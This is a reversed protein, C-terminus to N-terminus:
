DQMLEQLKLASQADMEPLQARKQKSNQHLALTSPAFAELKNQPWNSITLSPNLRDFQHKSYGVQPSFGNCHRLELHLHALYRGAATGVSGVTLGRPILKGLSVDIESLHAYMSHLTRGDPARHAVIVTKGWGPSPTGAYIVLGDAINYVPDGFDSDRGGIGNLDDGTHMGGRKKNPEMFSQANYAFAGIESGLAESVVLARPIQAAEFPSHLHFKPDFQQHSFGPNGEVPAGLPIDVFQANFFNQLPPEEEYRTDMALYAVYCFLGMILAPVFRSLIFPM